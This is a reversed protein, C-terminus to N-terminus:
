LFVNSLERDSKMEFTRGNVVIRRELEWEGSIDPTRWAARM